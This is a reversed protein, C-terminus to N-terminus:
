LSELQLFEEPNVSQGNCAVAFHLHEGLATELLATAGVAGIVQGAEVSQGAIVSVQSALSSYTTTYGGSHSIVVTTGMLDDETVSAVVGNAAACVETGEAAAIDIGNHTRWDRTTPNYCLSDVAYEMVAQGSVPSVVKGPQPLPVTTSPTTPDPTTSEQPAPQTAVAEVNEQPLELVPENQLTQPEQSNRYFLYGFVGIAVACLILAIYYGKASLKGSFKKNSM